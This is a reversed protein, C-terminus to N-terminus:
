GARVPPVMVIREAAPDFKTIKAGQDGNDAVSYASYGDKILENFTREANKVEAPQSKSWIIKYDGAKADMVQFFNHSQKSFDGPLDMLVMAPNEQQLREIPTQISM